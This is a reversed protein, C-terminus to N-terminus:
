VSLICDVLEADLAYLHRGDTESIASLTGTGLCADTEVTVETYDENPTVLATDSEPSGPRILGVGGPNVYSYDTETEGSFTRPFSAAPSEDPGDSGGEEDGCGAILGLVVMVGMVQVHKM